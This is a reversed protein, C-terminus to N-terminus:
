AKENSPLTIIQSIFDTKDIMTDNRQVPINLSYSFDVSLVNKDKFVKECEKSLNPVPCYM